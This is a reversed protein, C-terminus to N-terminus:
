CCEQPRMLTIGGETIWGEQPGKRALGPLGMLELLTLQKFLTDRQGALGNLDRQASAM